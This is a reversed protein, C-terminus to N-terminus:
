KSAIIIVISASEIQVAHQASTLLRVTVSNLNYKFSNNIDIMIPTPSTYVLESNTIELSPIYAIIPRKRGISGDYSLMENPFSPLEVMLDTFSIAESLQLEATVTFSQGQPSEYEPELFGLYSGTEPLTKFSIAAIGRTANTQLALADYVVPATLIPATQYVVVNDIETTFPDAAWKLDKVVGAASIVNFGLNYNTEYTWNEVTHIVTQTEGAILVFKLKGLSLEIVIEANDVQPVSSVVVGDPTKTVYNSVGEQTYVVYDYNTPTLLSASPPSSILGFAFKTTAADVTMTAEGCGNIFYKKTVGFADYSTGASSKTYSPSAYTLNEFPDLDSSPIAVNYSARKMELTLKGDTTFSARWQISGTTEVDNDLASNLALTMQKLFETKNYHGNAIKVDYFPRDSGGSTKYTRMEFQNNTDDITIEHTSLMVSASVLGVKSFPEIPIDVNFVNEFEDGATDTSLKLLKM